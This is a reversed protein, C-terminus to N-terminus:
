REIGVVSARDVCRQIIKTGIRWGRPGRWRRRGGWVGEGSHSDADDTSAVISFISACASAVRRPSGLSAVADVADRRRAFDIAADVHGVVDAQTTNIYSTDYVTYIRAIDHSVDVDVTKHTSDKTCRHIETSTRRTHTIYRVTPSRPRGTHTIYRVNPVYQSRRSFWTTVRPPTRPRRRSTKPDRAGRSGCWAGRWADRSREYPCM